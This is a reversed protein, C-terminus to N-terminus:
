KMKWHGDERGVLKGNSTILRGGQADGESSHGEGREGDDDGDQQNEPEEHSRCTFQVIFGPRQEGKTGKIVMVTM